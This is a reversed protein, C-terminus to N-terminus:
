SIVSPACVVRFTYTDVVADEIFERDINDELLGFATFEVPVSAAACAANIATCLPQNQGMAAARFVGWVKGTRIQHIVRPSDDAAEDQGSELGIATKVLVDVTAEYNGTYQIEPKLSHTNVITVPSPKDAARLAPVTDESTGVECSIIYAVIANNCLDQPSLQDSM